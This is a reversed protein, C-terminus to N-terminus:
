APGPGSPLVLAAIADAAGPHSWSRARAAMARRAAADDLLSEVEAGLAEPTLRDQELVRAAGAAAFARANSRQHDNAAGPFPILIAARGAAALEALTGAGSRAIVLRARGMAGAMDHIFSHLELNSGAQANATAGEAPELGAARYAALVRNYERAGTQHILRLARGKGNWIRAAEVLATNIARAGQSGGFALVVPPGEEAPGLSFFEPRTPIGTVVARPFDRATEAFAVAAADVWPAAWRNALGTHANVEMLVLRPAVGLRGRRRLAAAALVPGSAYGGIGLVATAGFDALIRLSEAVAAPLALATKAMARWGVRNLGGVRILRLDFGAAPVLDKEVGREAGVFLIRGAGRAALARAVALGPILHGGTGGGAIVIAPAGGSNPSPSEPPPADPSM